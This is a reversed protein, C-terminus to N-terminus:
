PRVEPPVIISPAPIIPAVAKVTPAATAANMASVTNLTGQAVGAATATAATTEVLKQVVGDVNKALADTKVGNDNAKSYALLATIMQVSFGIVAGVALTANSPAFITLAVVAAIVATMVAGLVIYISGGKTTNM